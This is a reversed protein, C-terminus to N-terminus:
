AFGRAKAALGGKMKGRIEKQRQRKVSEYDNSAEAGATVQKLLNDLRDDIDINKSKLYESAQSYTLARGSEDQLNRVMGPGMLKNEKDGSKYIEAFKSIRVENLVNNFKM